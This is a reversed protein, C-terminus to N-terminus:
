NDHHEICELLRTLLSELMDFVTLSSELVHLKESSPMEDLSQGGVIVSIESNHHQKETPDEKIEKIKLEYHARSLDIGKRLPKFFTKELIKFHDWIDTDNEKDRLALFRLLNLAAIIQDSLEILDSEESNHLFCFKKLLMLLKQGKFHETIFNNSKVFESALQDKYLTITYGILGSHNLDSMLNYILLYFGHTEFSNVYKKYIQLAFTRLVQIDNYVIIKALSRCFHGHCESDLMLYPLKHQQVHKLLTDSLKLGKEVVINHDCDLLNNVFELSYHFFYLSDYIKPVKEILIHEHYILYFLSGISLPKPVILEANNMNNKMQVLSIPDCNVRLIKPIIKETIIRAKSKINEFIEMDLYVLPKGLLDVLFKCILSRHEESEQKDNPLESIFNDCFFLIENYLKTIKLVETNTDLLLKEKGVLKENEPIECKILFSQISNFGWALSNIKKKPIRLIIRQLPQLLTLFKIDDFCEEIDEILQLLAEEPNSKEAIIGMLKECCQFVEPKNAENYTTLFTTIVPILDWSNNKVESVNESDSFVKLVQLTDDSKLLDEIKLVFASRTDKEM